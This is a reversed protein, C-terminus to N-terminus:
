THNKGQKRLASRIMSVKLSINNRLKVSHIYDRDLEDKSYEGVLTSYSEVLERAHVESLQV